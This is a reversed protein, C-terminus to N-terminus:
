GRRARDEGLLSALRRRQAPDLMTLTEDAVSSLVAHAARRQREWEGPLLLAILRLSPLLSGLTERVRRYACLRRTAADLDRAGDPHGLVFPELLLFGQSSRSYFSVDAVTPDDGGPCLITTLMTAANAGLHEIPCFRRRVNGTLRFARFFRAAWTCRDPFLFANAEEAEGAAERPPAFLVCQKLWRDAHLVGSPIKRPVDLRAHPGVTPPLRHLDPAEHLRWLIMHLTALAADGGVLCRGPLPDAVVVQLGEEPGLDDSGHLAAVPLTISRMPDPLFLVVRYLRSM